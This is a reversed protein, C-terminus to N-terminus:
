RKKDRVGLRVEWEKRLIEMERWTREGLMEFEERLEPTLDKADAKRGITETEGMTGNWGWGGV